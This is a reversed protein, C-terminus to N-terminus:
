IPQKSPRTLRACLSLSPSLTGVRVFQQQPAPIDNEIDLRVLPYFSPWNPVKGVVDQVRRQEEERQALAAEREELEKEKRAIEELKDDQAVKGKSWSPLVSAPPAEVDAAKQQEEENNGGTSLFGGFDLKPAEAALKSVFAFPNQAESEEAAGGVGANSSSNGEQGLLAEEGESESNNGFPGDM